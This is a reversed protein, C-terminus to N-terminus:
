QQSEFQSIAWWCEQLVALTMFAQHFRLNRVPIAILCLVTMVTQRLAYPTGLAILHDTGKFASDVADVVFMLALLGYFWKQRSHFYERFNRYDYMQDPFLIACLFFILAAYFILFFYLYFPWHVVSSFGFEFWWFHVVSLFLFITWGLHVGYIEDRSPHQVFRAWGNLLRAISLATVM